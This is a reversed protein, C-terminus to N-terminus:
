CHLLGSSFAGERDQPTQPTDQKAGGVGGTQCKSSPNKKKKKQDSQQAPVSELAVAQLKGRNRDRYSSTM